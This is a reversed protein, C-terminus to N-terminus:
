VHARGIKFRPLEWFSITDPTAFSEQIQDPTLETPLDYEPYHRPLNDAGSVWADTLHWHGAQLDATAADIQGSFKDAGEYRFVTVEALHVGQDAVRLAHVVAQHAADGQRMWLGTSAVSLQSAQGHIYRAELRSYQSLFAAAVPNFVTMALVGLAVAVFLPPTLFQWVSIGAARAAVLEHSRSMRLFAFIAGLLVAFPLLKQGIDPLKLLSMSMVIDPPIGRATSRTFLDALDLSLALAAFAGFVILVSGLFKRALYIMLTMSLSM